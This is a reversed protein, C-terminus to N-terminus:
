EYVGRHGDEFRELREKSVPLVVPEERGKNKEALEGDAADQERQTRKQARGEAAAKRAAL